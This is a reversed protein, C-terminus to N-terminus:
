VKRYLPACRVRDIDSFAFIERASVIDWFKLCITMEVCLFTSIERASVIHIKERANKQMKCIQLPLTVCLCVCSWVWRSSAERMLFHTYEDIALSWVILSWKYSHHSTTFFLSLTYRIGTIFEPSLDLAGFILSVIDFAWKRQSFSLIPIM